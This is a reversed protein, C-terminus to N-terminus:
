NTSDITKDKLIYLYSEIVSLVETIKNKNVYNKYLDDFEIDFSFKFEYRSFNYTNVLYYAAHNLSYKKNQITFRNKDVDYYIATPYLDDYMPIQYFNKIKEIEESIKNKIDNYNINKKINEAGKRKEIETLVNSGNYQNQEKMIVNIYNDLTYRDGKIDEKSKWFNIEIDKLENVLDLIIKNGNIDNKVEIDVENDIETKQSKQLKKKLTIIISLDM